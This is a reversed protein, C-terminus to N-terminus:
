DGPGYVAPPRLALPRLSPYVAVAQEAALKSAAYPSLTPHRAALSSLLIFKAPADERGTAADATVAALLATGAGNVRMFDSPHRAKVLAAAHVVADAGAVLRRLAAADHLDGQILTADANPPPTVPSRHQLLRLRYGRTALEGM